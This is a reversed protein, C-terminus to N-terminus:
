KLATEEKRYDHCFVHLSDKLDRGVRFWEINRCTFLKFLDTNRIKCAWKNYNLIIM